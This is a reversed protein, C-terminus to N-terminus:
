RTSEKGSASRHLEGDDPNAFIWAAMQASEQMQVRLVNDERIYAKVDLIASAEGSQGKELYGNTMAEFLNGFKFFKGRLTWGARVDPYHMTISILFFVLAMKVRQEDNAASLSGAVAASTPTPLHWPGFILNEESGPCFSDLEGSDDALVARSAKKGSLQTPTTLALETQETTKSRTQGAIPFIKPMEYNGHDKDIDTYVQLQYYQALTFTGIDTIRAGALKEGMSDLYKSWSTMTGLFEEAKVLADGPLWDSPKFCAQKRVRWIVRLCLYQEFEIKSASKYELVNHINGDSLGHNKVERAWEGATKPLRQPMTYNPHYSLRYSTLLRLSFCTYSLGRPHHRPLL